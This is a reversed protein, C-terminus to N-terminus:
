LPPTRSCDTRLVHRVTSVTVWLFPSMVHAAVHVVKPLFFLLLVLCLAM